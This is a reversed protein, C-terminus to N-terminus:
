TCMIFIYINANQTFVFLTSRVTQTASTSSGDDNLTFNLSNVYLINCSSLDPKDMEQFSVM